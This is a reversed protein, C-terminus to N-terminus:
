LSTAEDYIIYCALGAILGGFAVKLMGLVALTGGDVLAMVGYAVFASGILGLLLAALIVLAKM